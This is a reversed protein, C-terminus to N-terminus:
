QVRESSYYCKIVSEGGPARVLSGPEALYMNYSDGAALVVAAAGGLGGDV